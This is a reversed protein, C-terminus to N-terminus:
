KLVEMSTDGLKTTKKASMPDDKGRMYKQSSLLFPNLKRYLQKYKNKSIGGGTLKASSELLM